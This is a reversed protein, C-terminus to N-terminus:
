GTRVLKELLEVATPIAAEDPDFWPNHHPAPSAAGVNIYAGSGGAQQVAAIM